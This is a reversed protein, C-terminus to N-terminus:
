VSRSDHCVLYLIQYEESLKKILNLSATLKKDDLNYFPDDLIVFPKENTFLVDILAFRKCIDFLNQYGKSYFDTKKQSGNEEITVNFDVDIFANRKDKELLSLYKSFANQLPARYKIKLNEETNQLYDATLNLIRLRETLFGLKEELEVSSSKLEALCDAKREYELLLGKKRALDDMKYAYENNLHDLQSNLNVEDYIFNQELNGSILSSLNDEERKLISLRQQIDNRIENVRKLREIAVGFDVLGLSFKSFFENLKTQYENQIQLLNNYKEQLQNNLPLFGDKEKKSKGIFYLVVGLILSGVSLAIGVFINVFCLAIGVILPLIAFLAYIEPKKSEQNQIPLGQIEKKLLELQNKINTYDNYCKELAVIEDNSIDNSNLVSSVEALKNKLMKQEAIIEDLRKKNIQNAKNEGIRKIKLSIENISKKVFMLQNELDLIENKIVKTKEFAVLSEELERKNAFIERKVDPILGRDGSYKHKKAFEKVSLIADELSGVGEINNIANYKETLSENSKIEIDKQSFFTTYEFGEADIEFVRKGINQADNYAKGTQLDYLVVTDESEKQGFFRELKYRKNDKEFVVYGGFNESSNWPRYKLRENEEISRKGSGSLGYFMSKLFVAFTTKGFGNDEKIVNLTQNFDYSFDKLKGFSSVYCSVLKM